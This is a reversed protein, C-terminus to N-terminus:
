IALRVCGMTGSEGWVITENVKCPVVYKEVGLTRNRYGVLAALEAALRIQDTKPLPGTSHQLHM